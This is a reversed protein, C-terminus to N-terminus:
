KQTTELLFRKPRRMGDVRPSRLLIASINPTRSTRTYTLQVRTMGRFCPKTYNRRVHTRSGEGTGRESRWLIDEDSKVLGPDTLLEAIAEIPDLFSFEIMGRQRETFEPNVPIQVKKSHALYSKSDFKWAERINRVPPLNAAISEPGAYNRM